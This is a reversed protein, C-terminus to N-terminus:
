TPEEAHYFQSIEVMLRANFIVWRSGWIRIHIYARWYTCYLMCTSLLVLLITTGLARLWSVTKHITSQTEDHLCKSSVLLLSMMIDILFCTGVTHDRTTVVGGSDFVYIRLTEVDYSYSTNPFDEEFWSLAKCFVSPNVQESRYEKIWGFEPWDPCLFFLLPNLMCGMHLIVHAIDVNLMMWGVYITCPILIWNPQSPHICVYFHNILKNIFLLVFLRVCWEEEGWAHVAVRPFCPPHPWQLSYTLSCLCWPPTWGALLNPPTKLPARQFAIM